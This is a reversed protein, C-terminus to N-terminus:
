YTVVSISIMQIIICFTELFVKIQNESYSATQLM